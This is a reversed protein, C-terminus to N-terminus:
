KTMAYRAVRCVLKVTGVFLKLAVSDHTMEGLIKQSSEKIGVYLQSFFTSNMNSHARELAILGELSASFYEKNAFLVRRKRTREMLGKLMLDTILQSVIPLNIKVERSIKTEAKPKSKTCDLILTELRTLNFSENKADGFGSIDNENPSYQYFSNKNEM